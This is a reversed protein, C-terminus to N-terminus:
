RKGDELRTTHANKNTADLIEAIRASTWELEAIFEKASCRLVGSRLASLRILSDNTVVRVDYNKGIGNALREIYMDATEGMDTYAVRINHYEGRASGSDPTRYADFVLVTENKTYGAYSSLIDALRTRALDMSGAALAKLADWAFILNYGDVIVYQKRPAADTQAAPAANVRAATYSPRKIPGFEREMIAELEREDISVARRVAAPVIDKVERQPALVSDLHMYNKVEDWRVNFGAGHACFVSDPTNETDALPDYGISDVVARQNRCPRYSDFRLSLRGRGHTYAVLENAYGNMASVSAAGTLRMFGGDEEPSSFEANMARLDSIARGLQEAPVALMFAYYPELLVSEAQMLGQRIARYTAQRFDGGETHKLHARGAALTIKMDTIPSGTLVGRHPKELIHSLILRQWNGDLEDESVASDVVIGSGRPLPELLLHVEAYHRLPEFHGVGEVKNAITERYLIHGADLEVDLDFREKVLSKFIETQVKGMLQVSISRSTQEWAIHLQPDEEQLLLLKPLAVRADVGAPLIVRYSMVGESAAAASDTQVGLGEGPYTETLGLAACIQGARVTDVTDYKMGSYIRLQTIKEEHRAGDAGIYIITSRVSIEGGTIKMFTIRREQVDRAIKYVRAAFDDRWECPPIYRALADLLAEVGDLKLGSGFFCPTLERTAILAAIDADAFAATRAYVDMAREGTLAIAEDRAPAPLTFDACTDGLRATLGAMIAAHDANALDMKTVFVICPVNYRRLLAWLTETHAQVGDTGSVVLVACDLVSLTRETEASFDVHGPTDLLTFVRGGYEFVAQKSFITIGRERELWHTDLYSDRRDVRGLKKTKGSIYLMAETLTTKGADVHALVGATIDRENKMYTIKVTQPLFIM